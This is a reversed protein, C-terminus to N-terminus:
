IIEVFCGIKRNLVKECSLSFATSVDRKVFIKEEPFWAAFCHSAIGVQVRSRLALIASYTSFLSLLFTDLNMYASLDVLDFIQLIRLYYSNLRSRLAAVVM